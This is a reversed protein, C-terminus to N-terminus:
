QTPRAIRAPVMLAVFRARGLDLGAWTAGRPAALKDDASDDAVHWGWRVFALGKLALQVLQRGVDGVVLPLKVGRGDLRLFAPPPKLPLNLPHLLAHGLNLCPQRGSAASRPRPRYLSCPLKPPTLLFKGARTPM